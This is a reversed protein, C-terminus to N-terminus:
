KLPGRCFVYNFQIFTDDRNKNVGLPCGVVSLSFFEFFQALNALWPQTVRGNKQMKFVIVNFSLTIRGNFAVTIGTVVSGPGSPDCVDIAAAATVALAATSAAEAVDTNERHSRIKIEGDDQKAGARPASPTATPPRM